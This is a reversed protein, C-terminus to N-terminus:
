CGPPWIFSIWQVRQKQGCKQAEPIVLLPHLPLPSTFFSRVKIAEELRSAASDLFFAVVEVARTSGALGSVFAATVAAFRDTARPGGAVAQFLMCVPNSCQVFGVVSWDQPQCRMCSVVDECFRIFNKM